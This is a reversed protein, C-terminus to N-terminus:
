FGLGCEAHFSRAGPRAAVRDFDAKHQGVAHAIARQDARQRVPNVPIRLGFLSVPDGARGCHLMSAVQGLHRLLQVRPQGPACEIAISRRIGAGPQLHHEFRGGDRRFKRDLIHARQEAVALGGEPM